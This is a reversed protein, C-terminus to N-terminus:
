SRSQKRQITKMKTKRNKQNVRQVIGNESGIRRTSEKVKENVTNWQGKKTEKKQEVSKRQNDMQM